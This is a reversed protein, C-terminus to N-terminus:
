HHLMFSALKSGSGSIGLFSCAARLTALSSDKTLDIGNVLVKNVDMPSLQLVRELDEEKREEEKKDEAEKEQIEEVAKEVEKKREERNELKKYGPAFIGMDEPPAPEYSFITISPTVADDDFFQEDLEEKKRMSECYEPMLWRGGRKVLTTRMLEPSEEVEPIVTPDGFRSTLLSGVLLGHENSRWGPEKELAEPVQAELCNEDEDRIVRIRGQVTLPRNQLNLPVKLDGNELLQERSNIGWGHAM